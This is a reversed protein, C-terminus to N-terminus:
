KAKISQLLKSFFGTENNSSMEIEYQTYYADQMVRKFDKVEKILSENGDLSSKSFKDFNSQLHLKLENNKLHIKESIVDSTNTLLNEQLERNIEKLNEFKSDLYQEIETQLTQKFENLSKSQTEIISSTINQLILLNANQIDKIFEAKFNDLQIQQEQKISEILDEVSLLNSELYEVETDDLPLKNYYDEIEKLTMGRNKLKILLELKDVDNNTYRLEKHVIEIKLLDDFINTYYKINGIDEKLLDAVQDISYYLINGRKKNQIRYDVKQSDIYKDKNDM